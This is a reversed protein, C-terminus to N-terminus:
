GGTAPAPLKKSKDLSQPKLDERLGKVEGALTELARAIRNFADQMEYSTKRQAGEVADIIDRKDWQDLSM